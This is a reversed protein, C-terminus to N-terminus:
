AKNRTRKVIQMSVQNRLFRLPQERTGYSQICTASNLLLQKMSGAPYDSSLIGEIAFGFSGPRSCEYDFPLPDTGPLIQLGKEIAQKFLPPMPWFTPRGGNDGLFLTPFPNNELLSALVTGRHGIWKGFGWPIVPIGGSATVANITTELSSGDQFTQATLLALVELNEATVIQRGAIIYIRQGQNNEVCLSCDEQTTHISWQGVKQQDSSSGLHALQTLQRFYHDNQTETLLLVSQFNKINGQQQASAQFNQIAANLFSELNYCDYIHVHSDVLILQPQDPTTIMSKHDFVPYLNAGGM